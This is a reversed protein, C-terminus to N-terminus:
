RRTQFESLYKLATPTLTSWTQLMRVGLEPAIQALDLVAKARYAINQPEWYTDPLGMSKAKMSAVQDLIYCYAIASTTLLKRAQAYCAEVSIKIRPLCTKKFQQDFNFAVRRATKL